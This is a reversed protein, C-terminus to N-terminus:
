FITAECKIGILIPGDTNPTQQPILLNIRLCNKDITIRRFESFFFQRELDRTEDIRPYSHTHTRNLKPKTSNNEDNTM